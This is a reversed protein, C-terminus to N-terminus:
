TMYFPITLPTESGSLRKMFVHSVAFCLAGGLVVLAPTSIAGVGPRLIVLVGVFGLAM